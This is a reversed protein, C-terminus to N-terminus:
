QATVEPLTFYFRSGEGPESEVWMVGGHREVIRRAISLGVGVGGGYEDAAHLRRFVRFIEEQQALPVGIGDDAVCVVWPETEANVASRVRRRGTLTDDVRCVSVEIRPQGGQNYKAANSILNTLLESLRARDGRVIPLDPSFIVEAGTETLRSTLLEAAEAVIEALAVPENGLDNRGILAYEMLSDLLGSMRHSLRVLARLRERGVDDLVDAYDDILFTAHGFIGRLPEKLDHAAAYAFADLEANAASLAANANALQEARSLLFTGLASRLDRVSDVEAPLWPRSRGNVEQKWKELSERPSLRLQGNEERVVPAASNAWTVTHPWEPRFWMVFNGNLRSLPVALAGAGADEFDRLDPFDDTVCDSVYPEGDSRKSLEAVLVEIMGSPPTEGVLRLEGNVRVAAGDAGCVGLLDHASGALGSTVSDGKAVHELLANQHRVLGLRYDYIELEAKDALLLSTLLGVFECAARVSNPVHHPGTYHHASVLGWLRGDVTLAISMSARVGMNQLYKVHMPSVGRLVGGSLDLWAGSVPNVVPEIPVGVYNVDPILRLGHQLFLARAQAPIDGEPYHLGLFSPIWDEKEESVIVGHDDAEFRYVWVRDFGSLGKVVRAATDLLDQVGAAERLAALSSTVHYQFEEFRPAGALEVLELEVVILQEHSSYAFADVVRGPGAEARASLRSVEVRAPRLNSMDAGRSQALLEEVCAEGLLDDLSRGLVDAVGGDFLLETNASVQVVIRDAARACLLVGRPQIAGALHIPERACNDLDVPVGPALFDISEISASV